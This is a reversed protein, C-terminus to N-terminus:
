GTAPAHDGQSARPMGGLAMSGGNEQRRCLCYGLCPGLHVELHSALHKEFRRGQEVVAESEVTQVVVVGAGDDRPQAHIENSLIGAGRHACMGLRRQLVGSVQVVRFTDGPGIEHRCRDQLESSRAQSAASSGPTSAHTYAHLCPWWM